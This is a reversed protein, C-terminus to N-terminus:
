RSFQACVSWWVLGENIVFVPFVKRWDPDMVKRVSFCANQLNNVGINFIMCYIIVMLGHTVWTYIHFFCITNIYIIIYIYVEFDEFRNKLGILPVWVKTAEITIYYTFGYAEPEWSLRQDYWGQLVLGYSIIVSIQLKTYFLIVHYVSVCKSAGM